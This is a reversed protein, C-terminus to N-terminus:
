KILGGNVTTTISANSGGNFTTSGSVDGTLTITRATALINAEEARNKISATSGTYQTMNAGITGAGTYSRNNYLTWLNTNGSEGDYDQLIQVYHGTFAASSPLRMWLELTNTSGTRNHALVYNGDEYVGGAVTLWVPAINSASTPTLYARARLIGLVYNTNISVSSVLMVLNPRATGTTVFSAIKFWYQGTTSTWNIGSASRWDTVLTATDGTIDVSGTVAGSLTLNLNGLKADLAAQLGTVNGITHDHANDIVGLTFLKGGGEVPTETVEITSGGAVQVSAGEGDQGKPITFDFVAETDTGVNEVSAESGAPGTTTTGIKITAAPGRPGQIGDEGQAGYPIGFNFIAHTGDGVNTVYANSGPELNATAGVAITAAEGDEGPKGPLGEPGQLEGSDYLDQLTKGNDFKIFSAPIVPMSTGGQSAMSVGFTFETTRNNKLLVVCYVDYIRTGSAYIANYKLIQVIGETRSIERRILLDIDNKRQPKSGLIGYGNQYWPLGVETNLFWEGLERNLRIWLRQLIENDGTVIGGALTGRSNLAIDWSM